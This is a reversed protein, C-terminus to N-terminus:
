PAPKDDIESARKYAARSQLRQAYSVFAPRKELWGFQM